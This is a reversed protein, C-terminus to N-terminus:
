KKSSSPHRKLFYSCFAGLVAVAASLVFGTVFTGTTDKVWGGIFPAFVQGIGFWLTVFGFGASALQGGVADGVAAAIIVPIGFGTLGFIVASLYIGLPQRYYAFLLYSAAVTLFAFISANRRGIRDSLSGWPLGCFISLFGLLAFIGGAETAPMGLEKTLYAIFYTLYIMYSFGYALYVSSLKWIESENVVRRLATRLTITEQARCEEEQGDGGCLTLGKERPHDRLFAYCVFSGAFVIIGMIYWAYKWGSPGYYSICYPLLLGALSLGLGVGMNVIGMAFGRKRVVFWIAPLTIMPVPVGGNGLGTILRMTFAFSFSDSLGTLFLGVGELLLSVFIINRAGFRSALFGALVSVVLYGILNGTGVLGVQTYTLSLGEKMAPLIVTYSMKGLGHALMFALIGTFTIVWAYHMRPASKTQVDPRQVHLSPNKIDGSM